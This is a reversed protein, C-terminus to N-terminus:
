GIFAAAREESRVSRFNLERAPVPRSIFYGQGVDCGLDSLLDLTAKDEICEAVVRLGMAHGLQVTARVLELNRQGEETALGTVFIGDLKLEGVALGSLYALSTFGAGFDDISVVLGLDRLEKILVKAAEFNAILSTETIELVLVEAPLGHRDLQHRVMDSFRPDLLNTPSVNVAVVINEGGARWAACQGLAEDLVWATLSPMLGAEEALPLFKLPPVLGLRPHPWRVLAEVARVRGARLDLQPQYYLELRGQEVAERLEGVFLWPKGGDDLQKDYVAISSENLKARYMAADACRLLADYDTADAPVSAIGVSGSIAISVGNFIFPEQLNKSIRQAVSMAAAADTDLLVVGFEDGGLRVLVENAGLSSNLRPGLQKLLEDGASHGFSDNVAKFRDLDVYLFALARSRAGEVRQDAFFAELVQVLYRRNGLGTLHDTVSQRRHDQTLTRLSRVSLALRLGVALLSAAALALAVRSVHHVSGSFVIVFGSAAALGPLLFGAPKHPALFDARRPRLWVAVSMLLGAAPWALARFVAETRPTALSSQFLSFTDGLANLAMAAVLLAWPATIRSSVLSTGGVVLAFLLLDGVPFAVSAAEAVPKGGTAKL